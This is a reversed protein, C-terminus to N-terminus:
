LAQMRGKVPGHSRRREKVKQQEERGKESDESGKQQEGRGKKEHDRLNPDTPLRM